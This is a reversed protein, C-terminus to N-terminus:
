IFCFLALTLHLSFPEMIAPDCSHSLSPVCYSCRKPHPAIDDRESSGERCGLASSHQGSQLATFFYLYCVVHLPHLQKPNCLNQRPHAPADSQTQSQFTMPGASHFHHECWSLHHHGPFLSHPLVYGKFAHRLSGKRCHPGM